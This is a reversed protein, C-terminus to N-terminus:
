GRTQTPADPRRPQRRRVLFLGLLFLWALSGSTEAAGATLCGCGSDSSASGAADKKADAPRADTTTADALRGDTTPRDAAVESVDARADAGPGDIRADASLGDFPVTDVPTADAPNGDSSDSGDADAAIGDTADARADGGDGGDGADGADVGADCATTHVCGTVSNCTDM